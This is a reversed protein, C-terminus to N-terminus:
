TEETKALITKLGLKKLRRYITSRPIGLQKMAASMSGGCEEYCRAIMSAELERLDKRSEPLFCMKDHILVSSNM